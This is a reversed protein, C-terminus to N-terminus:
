FGGALSMGSLFAVVWISIGLIKWM